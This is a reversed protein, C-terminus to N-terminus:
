GAHAGKHAYKRTEQSGKGRERVLWPFLREKGQMAQRKNWEKKGYDGRSEDMVRQDREEM